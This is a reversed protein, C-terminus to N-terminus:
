NTCVVNYEVKDFHQNNPYVINLRAWGEHYGRKFLWTSTVMIEDAGYFTLEKQTYDATHHDGEWHYIVKGAKNTKIRGIFYITFGNKGCDGNFTTPVTSALASVVKFIDKTEPGVIIQVYFAKGEGGLGFRLGQANTLKWFGVHEGNTEPATMKVSLTVSAGPEVENKVFALSTSTTMADGSEFVLRYDKTWTCTGINRLTWTKVFETGPVLQARDAITESVYEAADCSNWTTTPTPITTPTNTRTPTKSPFATETPSRVITTTVAEPTSSPDTYGSLKTGLVEVTKMAATSSAKLAESASMSKPQCSTTGLLCVLLVAYLTKRM